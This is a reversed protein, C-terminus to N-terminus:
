TKFFLAFPELLGVTVGGGEALAMCVAVCVVFCSHVSDWRVGLVLGSEETGLESRGKCSKLSLFWVM